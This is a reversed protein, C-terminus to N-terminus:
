MCGKGSEKPKARRKLGNRSTKQNARAGSLRMLSEISLRVDNSFLDLVEDYEHEEFHQAFFESLQIELTTWTMAVQELVQEQTGRARLKEIVIKLRFPNFTLEYFIAKPKRAIRRVFGRKELKTLLRYLVKPSIQKEKAKSKLDKSRIPTNPKQFLMMIEAIRRRWRPM